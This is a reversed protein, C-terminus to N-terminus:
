PQSSPTIACLFPPPEPLPEADLAKAALQDGAAADQDTLAASAVFRAAIDFARLVIAKERDDGAHHQEFVLATVALEDVNKRLFFSLNAAGVAIAFGCRVLKENERVRRAVPARIKTKVGM